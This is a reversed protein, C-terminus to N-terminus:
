APNLWNHLELKNISLILPANQYSGLKLCSIKSWIGLTSLEFNPLHYLIFIINITNLKIQAESKPLIKSIRLCLGGSGLLLVVSILNSIHCVKVSVISIMFTISMSFHFCPKRRLQHFNCFSGGCPNLLHGSLTWDWILCVAQVGQCVCYINYILQTIPMSFHHNFYIVSCDELHTSIFSQWFSDLGLDLLCGAVRCGM